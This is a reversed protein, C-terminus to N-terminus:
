GICAALAISLFKSRESDARSTLVVPVKAGMIIAASTAGGLFNLAKYLFNAGNIDPAVILDVDGAVDSEINKLAASKKSVANDLALPGDIICGKIQKRKNMMSLTAAEMTAEMKPNVTEVSGVVAVKPKIIGIRHCAEVANNIIGIKDEFTPHVNMAADTLCLIKHYYPSEFFAVHSIIDGKRLGNEKNLVAKLIFQSSVLGKMLVEAHGDRILQAAKQSAEYRDEIDFIELGSIDYGIEKSISEIKEKIGILIPITLKAEQAQKLAILVEYDGAGAVSIRRTKKSRAMEVLENLNRIM